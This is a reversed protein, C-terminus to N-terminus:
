QVIGEKLYIIRKNTNKLINKNNTAFLTAIKYSKSDYIKKLIKMILKTNKEDLNAVPEDLIIIKPKGVFARAIAIKQREGESLNYPYLEKKDQMEFHTLLANIEKKNIGGRIELVLSLNEFITKSDILKFDQFVFGIKQRLKPIRKKTISSLNIGDVFVAGKSAKEWAIILKLISTKGSGSEGSLFVFENEKISFNIDYLATKGEYKKYVNSFKILSNM